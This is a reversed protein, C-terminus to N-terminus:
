GLSGTCKIVWPLPSSDTSNVVNEVRYNVCFRLTGYSKFVICNAFGRRSHRHIRKDIYILKETERGQSRPGARYLVARDLQSRSVACPRYAHNKNIKEYHGGHMEYCKEFINNFKTGHPDQELLIGITNRQGRGTTPNKIPENIQVLMKSIGHVTLLTHGNRRDIQGPDIIKAISDSSSCRVMHHRVHIIIDTLNNSTIDFINKCSNDIRNVALLLDPRVITQPPEIYMEQSYQTSGRQKKNRLKLRTQRAVRTPM